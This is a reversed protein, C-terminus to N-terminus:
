QSFALLGRVARAIVEPLTLKHKRAYALAESFLEPELSVSLVHRPDSGGARRVREFRKREEPSLPRWLSPPSPKDLERTAEALEGATM